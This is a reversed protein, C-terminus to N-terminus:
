PCGQQGFIHKASTRILDSSNSRSQAGEEFMLAKEGGDQKAEHELWGGMCGLVVGRNEAGGLHLLLTKDELASKLDSDSNSVSPVTAAVM